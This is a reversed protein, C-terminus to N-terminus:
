PLREPRPPAFAPPPPLPRGPALAQVTALVSAGADGGAVLPYAIPLDLGAARYAELCGAVAEAPGVAVLREVTERRVLQSRREPPAAAIRDVDEIGVRRLMAAYAPLELYTRVQPRLDDLAEDLDGVLVRVYGAVVVGSPDRGAARAGDRVAAVAAPVADLPLWNLLVGDAIRGAFALMRPNLAALVVPPRPRPPRFGLRYGWARQGDWRVDVTRGAAAARVAEVTAALRSFPDTWPTAFWRGTPAPAGAGIGLIFRGGSLDDLSAAAQAFAVPSRSFVPIVGTGLLVRETRMAFAAVQAVADHNGIDPTWVGTYGGAEAAAVWTLLTAAPVGVDRLAVGLPGSYDPM